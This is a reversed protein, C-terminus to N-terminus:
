KVKDTRAKDAALILDATHQYDGDFHHGGAMEVRTVIGDLAKSACVSDEETAGYVCQVPINRIKELEPLTQPGDTNKAGLIGQLRIEFSARDSIGLLSVMKLEARTDPALRNVMFPLLDAGFSYGVLIVGNGKSKPRYHRILRDLDSAMERPEKKRWFYRLSDVGVVFYGQDAFYGGIKKDIDRWGGDGSYFIVVPHRGPPAGASPPIEVLPLGDVSEEGTGVRPIQRLAEDVAAMNDGKAGDGGKAQIIHTEKMAAVFDGMGADPASFAASPTFLFPTEQDPVPGYRTPAGPPTPLLPLCLKHGVDIATDFGLGIGGAFTNPLVTAIAAYAIGSGAGIGLIVPPRYESFPLDKEVDRALVEIERNVLTCPNDDKQLAARYIPLDLGVVVEGEDALHRALASSEDDWGASDTILIILGNVKKGAQPAVYHIPYLVSGDIRTPKYDGPKSEPPKTDAAYAFAPPLCLALLLM